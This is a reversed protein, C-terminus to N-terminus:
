RLVPANLPNTADAVEGVFEEVVDELAIVGIAGRDDVVQALHSKNRQLAALVDELPLDARLQPM